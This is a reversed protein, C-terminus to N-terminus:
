LSTPLSLALVTNWQVSSLRAWLPNWGMFPNRIHLGFRRPSGKREEGRGIERKSSPEERGRQGM